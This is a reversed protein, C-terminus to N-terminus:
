YFVSTKVDAIYKSQEVKSQQEEVQTKRWNVDVLSIKPSLPLKHDSFVPRFCSIEQQIM